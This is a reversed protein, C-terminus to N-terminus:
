SGTPKPLFSYGPLDGPRPNKLRDLFDPIPLPDDESNLREHLPIGKDPLAGPPAVAKDISVAAAAHTGKEAKAKVTNEVAVAGCASSEAPEPAIPEAVAVEAPPPKSRVSTARKRPQPPTATKEERSPLYRAFADAFDEKKYGRTGPTYGDARFKTPKVGFPELLEALKNTTIPRGLKLDSWPRDEMAALADVIKASSLLDALEDFLRRLDELLMIGLTRESRGATLLEAAKRARGPWDGGAADAIAIMHRWNDATRGRLTGPMTPDAEELLRSNDRAWRWAQRCLPELQELRDGRLPEVHEGSTMRRLEIHVARSELTPPLHGILAIAKPAWTNFRRPKQNPGATRIVGGVDRHHGGNLIGRLEDNHKLFTDAEDVLLTPRWAEIIRFVAASTINDAPLPRPVLADLLALLTTKGCEPTPSTIALIPSTVASDHAHTHVIWLAVADAAQPHLVVHGRIRDTLADLLESGSVPEPWPEPDALRGDDDLDAEPGAEVRIRKIEADLTSTRIGLKRAEAERCRDYEIPSLAALRAFAAEDSETATSGFTERDDVVPRAPITAAAVSLNM